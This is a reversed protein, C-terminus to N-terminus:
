NIFCDKADFICKTKWAIPQVYLIYDRDIQFSKFPKQFYLFIVNEM